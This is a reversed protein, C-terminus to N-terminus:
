LNKSFMFVSYVVINLYKKLSGDVVRCVAQQESLILNLLSDEPCLKM